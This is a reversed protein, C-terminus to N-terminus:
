PVFEETGADNIIVPDRTCLTKGDPKLVNVGYWFAMPPNVNKDLCEWTKPDVRGCREFEAAANESGRKFYVGDKAPFTGEDVIVWRIVVRKKTVILYYPSVGPTVAPNAAPDCDKARVAITCRTGNCGAADLRSLERDVWRSSASGSSATTRSTESGTACAAVALACAIALMTRKM